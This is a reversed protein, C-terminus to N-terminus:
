LSDVKQAEERMSAVEDEHKRTMREIECSHQVEKEERQREADELSKSLEEQLKKLSQFLLFNSGTLVCGLLNNTM